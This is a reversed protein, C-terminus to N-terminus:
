VVPWGLQFPLACQRSPVRVSHLRTLTLHTQLINRPVPNTVGGRWEEGGGKRKDQSIIVRCCVAVEGWLVSVCLNVREAVQRALRINAPRLFPLRWRSVPNKEFGLTM